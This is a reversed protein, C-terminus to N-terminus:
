FEFRYAVGLSGTFQNDDVSVPSDAADGLLRSYGAGARLQIKDTVDFAANANLYVNKIGGEADFGGLAPGAAASSAAQTPSIGFHTQMYDDDAYEAGARLALDIRPTVAINASAGFDIIYGYGNDFGIDDLFDDDRPDGTFQHSVGIDLGVSAFESVPADFAVFAGGVIGGEVDGLGDLIDADEEDRGFRYGAIPGFSFGGFRAAHLRIDDLARFEFRRPGPVGSDYSIIPFPAIRYEDSGEYLPAATAGIGVLVSRSPADDFVPAAPADTVADAARAADPGLAVLVLAPALAALLVPARRATSRYAM